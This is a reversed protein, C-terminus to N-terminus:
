HLTKKDSNEIDLLENVTDIHRRQGLDISQTLYIFSACGAAEEKSKFKGIKIVVEFEKKKDHGRVYLQVDKAEM